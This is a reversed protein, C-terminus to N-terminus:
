KEEIFKAHPEKERIADRLRQKLVPYEKGTDRHIETGDRFTLSGTARSAMLSLNLLKNLQLNDGELQGTFQLEAVTEWRYTGPASGEDRVATYRGAVAQIHYRKPADAPDIVIRVVAERVGPLSTIGIWRGVFPDGTIKGLFGSGVALLLLLGAMLFGMTFRKM